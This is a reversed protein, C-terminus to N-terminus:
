GRNTELLVRRVKERIAAEELKKNSDDKKSLAEIKAKEEPSLGSLQDILKRVCKSVFMAPGTFIRSVVKLGKLVFGQKGDGFVGDLSGAINPVWDMLWELLLLVARVRDYWNLKLLFEGVDPIENWAVGEGDIIGGAGTIDTSTDELMLKMAYRKDKNSLDSKKITEIIIKRENKNM